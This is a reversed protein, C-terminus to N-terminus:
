LYDLLLGKLCWSMMYFVSAQATLCYTKCSFIKYYLEFFIIFAVMKNQDLYISTVLYTKIRQKHQIISTFRFGQIISGAIQLWKINWDPFVEIIQHMKTGKFFKLQFIKWIHRTVSGLWFLFTQILWIELSLSLFPVYFLSLFLGQLDILRSKSLLLTM